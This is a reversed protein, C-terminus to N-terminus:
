AEVTILANDQFESPSIGYKNKFIKSFYSRSSFGITYVIQSINLDTTRILDRAAELRAHRIYETVTRTYLLKFGEQLKAQSLGSKLSLQELSYEQAVDDAIEQALRRVIRLESRLLSTEPAKNKVSKDHQLIHISLIEYVLGEIMMMRVMGKTKVKRLASIKTALKLNYAGFYAFSKEHDTDFFVEYLKKNLADLSNLRKKLFKKRTIQIVNIELKQKAPFYGYNYGGEHSTIIVSQFQELTRVEDKSQYEFRHGCHGELCYAFHIPNYQSADMVLCIDDFFTIDYELLSVGWDFTIFRISGFALASNVTLTYEGWRDEITGGIVAQIQKVTDGTSEADVYIETM